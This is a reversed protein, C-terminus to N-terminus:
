PSRADPSPPPVPPPTQPLPPRSKKRLLFYAFPAFYFILWHGSFGRIENANFATYEAPTLNRIFRGHSELVYQNQKVATSGGETERLFLIFNIGVYVFLTLGVALVWGPFVSRLEAATPRAPLSKRSLLVFPLFVAFVGVHLLWVWPVHAAVDIGLLAAIHVALSLALGTLALLGLPLDLPSPSNMDRPSRNFARHNAESM